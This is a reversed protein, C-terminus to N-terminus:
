VEGTPFLMEQCECKDAFGVKGPIRRPLLDRFSKFPFDEPVKEMHIIYAFYVYYMTTQVSTFIVQLYVDDM